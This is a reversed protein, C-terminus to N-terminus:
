QRERTLFSLNDSVQGDLSSRGVTSEAKVGNDLGPVRITPIVHPRRGSKYLAELRNPTRRPNIRLRIGMDEVEFKQHTTNAPARRARFPGDGPDNLKETGIALFLAKGEAIPSDALVTMPIPATPPANVNKRPYLTYRYKLFSFRQSTERLVMRVVDGPAAGLAMLVGIESTRRTVQVGDMTPM